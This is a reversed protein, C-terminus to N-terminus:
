AMCTRDGLLSLVAEFGEFEPHGLFLDGHSGAVRHAARFTETRTWDEFHQGSEWVTHSAYLAHDEFVPGQTAPLCGASVQQCSAGGPMLLQGARVPMAANANSDCVGRVQM